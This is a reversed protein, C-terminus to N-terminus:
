VPNQLGNPVPLTERPLHYRLYDVLLERLPRPDFRLPLLRSLPRTKLTRLVQLFGPTIEEADVRGRGCRGCLVGGASVSFYRLDGEGECGLCRFLEPGHGLLGVGKLLFALYLTETKEVPVKELLALAEVALDFLDPQPAGEASTRELFRAIGMAREFREIQRPIGPFHRLLDAEKLTQIDRGEKAYFIVRSVSLVELSARIRSQPRRRGKAMLKLRGYERSFVVLIDSSDRYRIHRLVLVTARLLGRM